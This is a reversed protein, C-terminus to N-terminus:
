IAVLFSKIYVAYTNNANTNEIDDISLVGDSLITFEENSGNTIENSVVSDIESALSNYLNKNLRGRSKLPVYANVFVRVDGFAQKYFESDDYMDAVRVVIFGEEADSETLEEPIKMSYINNSVDKLIDCIYDYLDIRSDNM